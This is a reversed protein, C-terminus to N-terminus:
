LRERVSFDNCITKGIKTSCGIFFPSENFCNLTPNPANKIYALASQRPDKEKRFKQSIRKHWPFYVQNYTLMQRDDRSFNDKIQYPLWGEDVRSIIENVQHPKISDTETM